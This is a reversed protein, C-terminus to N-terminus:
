NLKIRIRVLVLVATARLASDAGAHQGVIEYRSQAREADMITMRTQENYENRYKTCEMRAANREMRATNRELRVYM